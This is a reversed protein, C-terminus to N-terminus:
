LMSKHIQHEREAIKKISYENIIKKRANRALRIGLQQDLSLRQISDAINEPSLGCLLGEQEHNILNKNEPIKSAICPMGSSMAEILAKPNGEYFSPLIFLSHTAFVKPIQTNPITGLFDVDAKQTKAYRILPEKLQGEGVLTLSKGTLACATILSYLNKQKTLRGVCIVDKKKSSQIPQFLNTDVPNGLIHIKNKSIGYKQIFFEKAGPYTVIIGQAMKATQKEMLLYFLQM